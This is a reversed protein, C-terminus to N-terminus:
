GGAAQIQNVMHILRPGIDDELKARSLQFSPGGCNFALIGHEKHVLPVAVSNVERTWEGISLCYGFKAYDQFARDLGIRIELWNEAYHERISELLIERESDPMAALCARGVSSLHVPLYSGVQRRMSLNGTGHVLHLYIMQLRERAAMAVAADSYSALEEMFPHAIARISINSLTQYGFALVGIDLHYKGSAPQKKLCGLKALTYTLRSVTAKPLGTKAALDQNGLLNHEPTFCRLLDLGRVLATVMNRDTNPALLDKGYNELVPSNGARVRPKAEIGSTSVPGKSTM